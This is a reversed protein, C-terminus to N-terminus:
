AAPRPGTPRLSMLFRLPMAAWGEPVEDAPMAVLVRDWTLAHAILALRRALELTRVLEAHPALDAFGDLYADRLRPDTSAWSRAAPVLM